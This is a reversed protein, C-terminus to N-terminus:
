PGYGSEDMWVFWISYYIGRIRSLRWRSTDSSIRCQLWYNCVEQTESQWSQQDSTSHQPYALRWTSGHSFEISCLRSYLAVESTSGWTNFLIFKVWNQHKHSKQWVLNWCHMLKNGSKRRSKMLTDVRHLGTAPYDGSIRTSLYSWQNWQQLSEVFKPPLSMLSSLQPSGKFTIKSMWRGNSTTM